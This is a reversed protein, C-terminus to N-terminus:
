DGYLLRHREERSMQGLSTTAFPRGDADAGKRELRGEIDEVPPVKAQRRLGTGTSTGARKAIGPMTGDSRELSDPRKQRVVM